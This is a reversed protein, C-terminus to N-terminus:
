AASPLLTRFEAPGTAGASEVLADLVARMAPAGEAGRRCAVFLHRCPPPGTLPRIVAGAGSTVGALRPLLGVGLEAGAIAALARWEGARHVIDPTFGAAQCAGVIVQECTWGGPPGVWPEGRLAALDIADRAALPHSVPVVADLPDAALAIRTIRPDDLGPVSPAEMSVVVDLEQRGLRAFADPAEAEVIALRIGPAAKRLAGAAPAVIRAIATAFAGIRLDAREGAAHEAVEAHMSEVEAFITQARRILVHAVPTLRISRGDPEVLREGVDRELAALQQSVASPTLHLADAAAAITGRDAVECLARLRGLHLM